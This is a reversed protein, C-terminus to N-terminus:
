LAREKIEKGDAREFYCQNHQHTKSIGEFCKQCVDFNECEKCHYKM